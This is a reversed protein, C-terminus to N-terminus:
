FSPRHLESTDTAPYSTSEFHDWSPLAKRLEDLRSKIEAEPIASVKFGEAVTIAARVAGIFKNVADINGVYIKKKRGFMNLSTEREEVSVKLRAEDWLARMERIFDDIIPLSNLQRLQHDILSIQHTFQTSARSEADGKAIRKLKIAEHVRL